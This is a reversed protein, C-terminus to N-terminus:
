RPTSRGSGSLLAAWPDPTSEAESRDLMWLGESGLISRCADAPIELSARLGVAVDYGHLAVEYSARACWDSVTLLIVGDSAVTQSPVYKAVALFSTGVGRLAAILDEPAADPKAHLESVPLFGAQAASALQLTYSFVCDIMHDVTQWCSWELGNAPMTWDDNVVGALSDLSADLIQGFEDPTMAVM